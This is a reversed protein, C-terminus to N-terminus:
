EDIVDDQMLGLKPILYIGSKRYLSEKTIACRRLVVGTVAAYRHSCFLTIECGKELPIPRFIREAM